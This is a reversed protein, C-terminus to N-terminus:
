IYRSWFKVYKEYQETIDINKFYDPDLKQYAYFTKKSFEEVTMRPLDFYECLERMRSDLMITLTPVGAILAAVNGHFRTGISFEQNRIANIWREPEPLFLSQELASSNLYGEPVNNLNMIGNLYYNQDETHQLFYVSDENRLLIDNLKNIVNNPTKHSYNIAFDIENLKKDKAYKKTILVKYEKMFLSPCGIVDFDQGEKFGLKELYDATIYGRTGLYGGTRLIANIFNKVDEDFSHGINQGPDYNCRVCVGPVIVPIKLREIFYTLKKLHPIFDKRFADALPLIYADFHDNIYDINRSYMYIREPNYGDEEANIGRMKMFHFVSNLYLGNGINSGMVDAYILDDNSIFDIKNYNLGSRILVNKM